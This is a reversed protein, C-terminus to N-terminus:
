PLNYLRSANDFLIMKAIMKAEPESLYGEKIKNCLVKTIIKKAVKLESYTNEVSMCDGGFATLRSVPVTELWENMYRESYTPSISYMWNMDIYVNKYNKALASLEGGYPYSGHYLVFKVEPYENFLNTLLTPNTNGVIKGKGAQIGTHIAVPIKYEEALDMLVYLMYDQLPKADKFSIVHDEDGNVLSRFVKRAADTEVKDFSLTRYYAVFIKVAIMGKKVEKEFAVRLSRTFDELTYIPDLQKIALSDIGYKSRITLWNDFRKEYRFYDDKGPIPDGDKIVYKINCSDKLVQEYWNTKYANAIKASLPGVTSENLDKTGYLKNIGLLIIRNFSTNFSNGWYPEILKWKQVPTLPENFLDEFLSDPMGASVLDDYGNQQFLLSFDLFYSGKIIQPDLLHEHTDIVKLSDVYSRIRKEYGTDESSITRDQGRATYSLAFLILFIIKFKM